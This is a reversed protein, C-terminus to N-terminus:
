LTFVAGASLAHLQDDLKEKLYVFQRQGTCHGTYCVTGAARIMRAASDLEERGQGDPDLARFHFGGVLVDPRLWHLINRLGKHSCGSFLYRIGEEEILLYQEHRFDDPIRRGDETRTLGFSDTFFRRPRDNGSYLTVGPAIVHEDGTLILRGSERLSDTLGIYKGAANHCAGFANQNVYIKATPNVELFREMGGGHDYHGHSLVAFDVSSLDVGMKAANDAFAGSQGADFLIRHRETEILLSLGHEAALDAGCATNEILTHLRM